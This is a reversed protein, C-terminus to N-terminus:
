PEAEERAAEEGEVPPSPATGADTPDIVPAPSAAASRPPEVRSGEGKAGGKKRKRKSSPAEALTDSDLEETPHTEDLSEAPVADKTMAVAGPGLSGLSMALAPSRRAEAWYQAYFYSVLLATSLAIWQSTSLQVSISSGFSPPKLALYAVL